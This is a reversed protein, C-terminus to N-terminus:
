TVTKHKWWVVRGARSTKGKALPCFSTPARPKMVQGAQSIFLVSSKEQAVSHHSTRINKTKM